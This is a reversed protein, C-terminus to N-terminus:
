RFGFTQFKWPKLDFTMVGEKLLAGKSPNGLLDTATAGKVAFGFKVRAAGEKGDTEVLRMEFGLATKRLESLQVNGPEVSVFSRATPLTGNAPKGVHVILKQTFDNAARLRDANTIAAHPLLAHRYEAYRPWGYDGTFRSEWERMILNSVVGKEDIKFWQTGEHLVLLGSDKGELDAFTLAHFEKHITPEVAMAYDRLVTTPQFNPMFDLYYGGVIDPPSDDPKPPMMPLLRTVVEAYPKGAALTVQTEYTTNDWVHHAKLTAFVPGKKVWTLVARTKNGDYDAAINPRLPFSQNPKARYIPFMDGDQAIMEKGLRKDFLSRIAGIQPDIQIWIYENEMTLNKEDIQLLSTAIEPSFVLYYTSYGVSPASANFAVNVMELKGDKDRQSGVIQSPIDRGNQDVVSVDNVKAPLPYLRGTEVVDNRDWPSPNFVTIALRGEGSSKVRGALFSTASELVSTATGEASDALNYGLAGWTFNHKDEIRDLPAMRDQQWRSYECLGVDHSQSALLDKWAEDLEKWHSPFGMSSAIADFREAALLEGEVKRQFIRVQDGGLGWTLSKSWDDMGFKRTETPHGYKDMYEKLTVYEVPAQKSINKYYDAQWTYAPTEHPEWGFEEWVMLLPKGLKDLNKYGDSASLQKWDLGARFLANKPTTPITSGDKGKWNLSNLEVTPVGARGWTDVQALSAYKYGASILIQPLQPHSFEEEELFTTMDYGLAQKIAVRGMVVQRINSEGSFTTAMPQGYSGGILELKGAALYKKLRDTVEPFHKVMLEYARADLNICTKVGARDYMEMADTVSLVNSELGLQWGIGTYSWHNCVTVCLGDGPKDQQAAPGVLM